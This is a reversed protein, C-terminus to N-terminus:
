TAPPPMSARKVVSWFPDSAVGHTIVTIKAGGTKAATKGGEDNQKSCGAGVMALSAAIAALAIRRPLM